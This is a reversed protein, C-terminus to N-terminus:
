VDSKVELAVAKYYGGESWDETFEVEYTMGHWLIRDPQKQEKESATHLPEVSYIKIAGKTRRGEDVRVLEHPRAPQVVARIEIEEAPREMWRGQEDYAGSPKRYVKVSSAM